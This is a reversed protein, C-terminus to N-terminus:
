HKQKDGQETTDKGVVGTEEFPAQMKIGSYLPIRIKMREINAGADRAYEMHHLALKKLYNQGYFDHFRRVCYDPARRDNGGFMRLVEARVFPPLGKGVLRDMIEAYLDNVKNRDNGEKYNNLMITILECTLPAFFRQHPGPFLKAKGVLAGCWNELIETLIEGKTLNPKVPTDFKDIMEEFKKTVLDAYQDVSFNTSKPMGAVLFKRGLFADLMANRDHNAQATLLAEYDFYGEYLRRAVFQDVRQNFVNQPIVGSLLGDKLENVETELRVINVFLEPFAPCITGNIDVEKGIGFFTRTSSIWMPVDKGWRAQNFLTM